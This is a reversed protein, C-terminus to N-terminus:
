CMKQHATLTRSSSKGCLRQNPTSLAIRKIRARKICYRCSPPDNTNASISQHYRSASSVFLYFFPAQARIVKILVWETHTHSQPCESHATISHWNLAPTPRARRTSRMAPAPEMIRRDVRQIVVSCAHTRAQNRAHTHTATRPCLSNTFKTDAACPSSFPVNFPGADSTFEYTRNTHTQTQKHTGEDLSHSHSICICNHVLTLTCIIFIIFMFVCVCVCCTGFVVIRITVNTRFLQPM